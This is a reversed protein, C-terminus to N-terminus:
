LASPEETQEAPRDVVGAQRARDLLSNAVTLIRRGHQLEVLEMKYLRAMGQHASRSCDGTAAAARKLSDALRGEFYDIELKDAPM